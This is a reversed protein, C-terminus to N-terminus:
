IEKKGAAIFADKAANCIKNKVAKISDPNKNDVMKRFDYPAEYPYKNYITNCSMGTLISIALVLQEKPLNDLIIKSDQLVRFLYMLEANKYALRETRNVANLGYYDTMWQLREKTDSPLNYKSKELDSQNMKDFGSIEDRQQLKKNLVELLVTAFNESTTRSFLYTYKKGSRSGDLMEYILGENMSMLTTDGRFTVLDPIMPERKGIITSSLFNVVLKTLGFAIESPKDTHPIKTEWYVAVEQLFERFHEEVARLMGNLLKHQYGSFSNFENPDLMDEKRLIQTTLSNYIVIEANEQKYPTGITAGNKIIEEVNYLSATDKEDTCILADYNELNHRVGLQDHQVICKVLLNIRFRDISITKDPEPAKKRGNDVQGKVQGKNKLNKSKKM